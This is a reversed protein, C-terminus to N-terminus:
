SEGQKIPLEGDGVTDPDYGQLRLWDELRDLRRKQAVNIRQYGDVEAELAQERGELHEIRDYARDLQQAQQVIIQNLHSVATGVNGLELQQRIIPQKDLADVISAKEQKRKRVIDFAQKGLSTLATIAALWTVAEVANM